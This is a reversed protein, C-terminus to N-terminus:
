SNNLSQRNTYKSRHQLWDMLQLANIILSVAGSQAVKPENKSAVKIEFDFNRLHKTILAVLCM